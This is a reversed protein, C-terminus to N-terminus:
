LLFERQTVGGGWNRQKFWDLAQSTSDAQDDHKAKPFSTIEHLYVSLWPAKEPLHVFGGEVTPCVSYFRMLKDMKPMYAKIAHVGQYRLEQVLPTGSAKDEILITLPRYTRALEAVARKLGPYDVRERYVHILYLDNKVVGWTTCVSYDNLDGPKNATDWSHFVMRFEPLQKYTKFWSQKMMGGGAPAPSQQYQGAFNWEGVSKRIEALAALSERKNHLAEGAQRRVAYPGFLGEITHREDEEAIAPLKVRSWGGQDLLHGTLDDEHLRQMVLVICGTEKDNLRTVLTNSFWDNVRDRQTDSLAEEAKLPDDIIVLDAGRGTLSGGVSSSLRYGGQNTEFDRIPPRATVLRTPFINQYWPAQIIKRCEVAFKEALDQGYSVTMIKASPNKALAWAPFAVSVIHSKLSRPPVNIILRHLEGRRCRELYNAILALHWNDLFTSEPNLEYFAKVVFAHFNLRLLAQYQGMTMKFSKGTKMAAGEVKKM